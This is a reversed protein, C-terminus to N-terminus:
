AIAQQWQREGFGQLAAAYTPAHGPLLHGGASGCSKLDASEWDFGNLLDVTRLLLVWLDKNVSSITRPAKITKCFIARQGCQGYQPPPEKEQDLGKMLDSFTSSCLLFPLTGKLAAENVLKYPGKKKKMEQTKEWLQGSRSLGFSGEFWANRNM